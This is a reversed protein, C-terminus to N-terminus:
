KGEAPTDCNRRRYLEKKRRRGFVASDQSTMPIEHVDHSM